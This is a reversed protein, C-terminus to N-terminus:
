IKELKINIGACKVGKTFDPYHGPDCSFIFDDTSMAQRKYVIFITQM